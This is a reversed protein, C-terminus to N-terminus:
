EPAASADDRVQKPRPVKVRNMEEILKAREEAPLKDLWAKTAREEGSELGASAGRAQVGGARLMSVAAQLVQAPCDPDALQERLRRLVGMEIDEYLSARTEPKASHQVM